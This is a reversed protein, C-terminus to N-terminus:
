GDVKKRFKELLAEARTWQADTFTDTMSHINSVEAVLVAFIIYEDEKELEM